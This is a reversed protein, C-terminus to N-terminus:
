DRLKKQWISSLCSNTQRANYTVHALLYPQKMQASNKWVLIPREAALFTQSTIPFLRNNLFFFRGLSLETICGLSGNARAVGAHAM